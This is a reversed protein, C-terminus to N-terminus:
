TEEFTVAPPGSPFPIHPPQVYTTSIHQWDKGFPTDESGLCPAHYTYFIFQSVFPPATLGILEMIWTSNSLRRVHMVLTVGASEDSVVEGHSSGDWNCDNDITAQSYTVSYSGDMNSDESGTVTFTVDNELDTCDERCPEALIEACLEGCDEDSEVLSVIAAILAVSSNASDAPSPEWGMSDPPTSGDRRFTFWANDTGTGWPPSGGASIQVSLAFYPDGDADIECRIAARMGPATSCFGVASCFSTRRMAMRLTGQRDTDTNVIQVSLCYRRGLPACRCLRGVVGGVCEVSSASGAVTASGGGATVVPGAWSLAIQTISNTPFLWPSPAGPSPQVTQQFIPVGGAFLPTGGPVRVLDVSFQADLQRYSLDTDPDPDLDDVVIVHIRFYVDLYFPGGGFGAYDGEYPISARRLCSYGIYCVPVNTGFQWFEGNGAEPLRAVTWGEARNIDGFAADFMEALTPADGPLNPHTADPLEVDEFVVVASLSTADDEAWDLCTPVPCEDPDFTAVKGDETRAVKGDSRRLVRLRAM